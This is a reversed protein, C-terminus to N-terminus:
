SATSTSILPSIPRGPHQLWDIGSEHRRYTRVLSAPDAALLEESTGGYDILCMTVKGFHNLVGAIWDAVALQASVTTGPPVEGFADECWVIVDARAAVEVLVLEDGEVGVAIEAWGDETRRVLAAPMNDLVENAVIAADIGEPLDSTSAVAVAGVFMETLYLRAATSREVIYVPGRDATWIDAIEALLAGSGAGVEVLAAGDSPANGDVWVGVCYGFAWSVEPSTAFDGKKGSRVPGASFFGEDPDYLCWEMYEDFPMPGSARVHEVIRERM